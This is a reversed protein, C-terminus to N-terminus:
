KKDAGACSAGLWVSDFKVNVTAQPTKVDVTGRVHASDPADIQMKGTAAGSGSCQFTLEQRKPTNTVVTYKCSSGQEAQQRFAGEKLDKETVCSKTKTSTPGRAGMQKFMQEMQARQEPPVKALADAPMSIAGTNVVTTTEWLGTKAALGDAALLPLALAACSLLTAARLSPRNM